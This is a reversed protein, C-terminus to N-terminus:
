VSQYYFFNKSLRLSFKARKVRSLSISKLGYKWIATQLRPRCHDQSIKSWTIFSFNVATHCLSWSNGPVTKMGMVLVAWLGCVVCKSSSSLFLFSTSYLGAPFLSRHAVHLDGGLVQIFGLYFGDPNTNIATIYIMLYRSNQFM